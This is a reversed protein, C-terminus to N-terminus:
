LPDGIEHILQGFDTEEVCATSCIFFVTWIQHNM